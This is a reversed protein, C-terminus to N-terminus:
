VTFLFLIYFLIYKTLTKILHIRNYVYVFFFYFGFLFMDKSMFNIINYLFFPENRKIELMMMM